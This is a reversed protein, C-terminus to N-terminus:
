ETGKSVTPPSVEHLGGNNGNGNGNGNGKGNGNGDGNGNDNGSGNGHDNGNNNGNGLELNQNVQHAELAANVRQDIMEEITAHTMGSRTNTMTRRLRGRADDRDRRIQRFEEESMHHYFDRVVDSLDVPTDEVSRVIGDRTGSSDPCDEGLPEGSHTLGPMGITLGLMDGVDDRDGIGLEMDVGTRTLSVEADEELSAESSYSDRFRKRPPLHNARTPALSGMVPMSLPVSDVPSRYRKRSLGASHSSLHMPREMIVRWVWRRFAESRRTSEEPLVIQTNCETSSGSHAQIQGILGLSHVPSSVFSSSSSSSKHIQLGLHHRGRHLVASPLPTGVEDMRRRIGLPATVPAIPFEHSSSPHATVWQFYVTIVTPIDGFSIVRSATLDWVRMRLILLFLIASAAM